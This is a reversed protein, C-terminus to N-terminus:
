RLYWYLVERVGGGVGAFRNGNYIGIRGDAGGVGNGGEAIQFILEGNPENANHGCIYDKFVSKYSPNLNHQDRRVMIEACEDRAIQYYKKYDASRAMTTTERRLSYGGRFLAIRARLAKVAGKTIREDSVDGIKGVDTRWPILEEAIRLDELIHDYITDRNTKPLFITPLDASPATQEPVDGWLKVLDFYFLARLTLAEGHLRRLQAQVQASGNNYLDMQPIYKICNNAREIGTYMLSYPASLNSNVQTVNYRSIDRDSNDNIGGTGKFDDIDGQFTMSIRLGMYNQSALLNYTGIVASQAYAVNGFVQNTSFSSIPEPSIFKKCGVLTSTAVVLTLAFINFKDITKKM